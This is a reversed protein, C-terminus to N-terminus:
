AVEKSPPSVDPNITDRQEAKLDGQNAAHLMKYALAIAQLKTLHVIARAYGREDVSVKLRVAQKSGLIVRVLDQESDWLSEANM